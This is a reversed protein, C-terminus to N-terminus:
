WPPGLLDITGALPEQHRVPITMPLNFTFPVTAHRKTVFLEGPFRRWGLRDYFPV